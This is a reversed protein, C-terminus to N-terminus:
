LIIVTLLPTLFWYKFIDNPFMKYFYSYSILIQNARTHIAQFGM